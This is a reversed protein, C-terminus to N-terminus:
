IPSENFTGAQAGGGSIAPMEDEPEEEAPGERTDYAIFADVDVLIPLAIHGTKSAEIDDMTIGRSINAPRVMDFIEDVVDDVVFEDGMIANIQTFFTVLTPRSLVGDGRLDLLRFLWQQAQPATKNDLNLTIDLFSKYDLESDYTQTEEFLRTVFLPALKSNGYRGFEEKSLLGNRDVDLALYQQYLEKAKAASFWNRTLDTWPMPKDRLEFLEALYQSTLLAPISVRGRHDGDLFFMMRRVAHCVYFPLFADDIDLAALSPALEHIYTELDTETLSGAGMADYFSLSISTQQVAVDRMAYNFFANGDITDRAIQPFRFFVSPRFYVRWEKVGEEREDLFALREEMSIFDSYSLPRIPTPDSIDLGPEEVTLLKLIRFIEDFHTEDPLRELEHRLAETRAEKQLASRIPHEDENLIPQTFSKM